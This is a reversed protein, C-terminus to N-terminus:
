PVHPVEEPAPTMASLVEPPSPRRTMPLDVNSRLPVTTMGDPDFDATTGIDGRLADLRTRARICFTAPPTSTFAATGSGAFALNVTKRFLAGADGAVAVTAQNM